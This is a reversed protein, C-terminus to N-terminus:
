HCLRLRPNRIDVSLPTRPGPFPLFWRFPLVNKANSSLVIKLMPLQVSNRSIQSAKALAVVFCTTQCSRVCEAQQLCTEYKWSLLNWTICFVTSQALAQALLAKSKGKITIANSWHRQNAESMSGIVHYHLAVSGTREGIFCNCTSKCSM